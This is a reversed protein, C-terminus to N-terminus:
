VDITDLIKQVDHPQLAWRYAPHVEWDYGFDVFENALFRSQDFYKREIYGKENRKRATIFDIKYLFQILSSPTVYRKNTFALRSKSIIDKLKVTLEGTDYLYSESTKRQKKTPRMNLLLREIEPLESKFENIIDQLRESSYGEFSSELNKSSIIDNDDMYARTAAAHMLKVLDRPRKRTLSLLVNHIPRNSWHGLGIFRPEVVRSLITSSIQAQSLKNIQDQPRDIDFFSEIRKAIICLIEHNSWTLWVVNREIKDTSEDSTRVLFYVDSRLGIRFKVARDSGALDRIANLLASINKIDLPSASWGRDIDDIYVSIVRSESFKEIVIKDMRNTIKSSLDRFKDVLASIFEDMGSSINFRDSQTIANGSITRLAKKAIAELIGSKWREILLNFDEIKTETKVEVLDNPQIWVALNGDDLDQLYSRRLLASKGIGKHGVLVRIPLNSRLVDYAKNVYFYQKFRDIDENEADEAGFLAEITEADFDPM